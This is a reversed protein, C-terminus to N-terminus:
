ENGEVYVPSALIQRKARGNTSPTLVLAAITRKM